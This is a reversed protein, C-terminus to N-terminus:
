DVTWRKKKGLLRRFLDLMRKSTHESMSRVVLIKLNWKIKDCLLKGIPLKLDLENAIRKTEQIHTLFAAPKGSAGGLPMIDILIPIYLFDKNRMQQTLFRSDAAIRYSCDFAAGNRLTSAHHFIGPHPPLKPQYGEWKGKMEDWPVGVEEIFTRSEESIYAVRGYVIDHEPHAKALHPAIQTLTQIDSLEDGAGIFQVWEGRAYELAKNWADYIGTDPASFWVDILDNNERLLDVTDDKSAGDAVIWQVYPYTQDRISKITWPLDRAANFTSTIITILPKGAETEVGNQWRHAGGELRKHPSADSHTLSATKETM